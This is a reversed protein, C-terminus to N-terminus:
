KDLALSPFVLIIHLILEFNAILCWFSTISTMRIDKNNVKFLNWVNNQYKLQQIQDLLHRKSRFSATIFTRLGYDGNIIKTTSEIKAFSFRLGVPIAWRMLAFIDLWGLLWGVKSPQSSIKARILRAAGTQSKGKCFNFKDIGSLHAVKWHLGM